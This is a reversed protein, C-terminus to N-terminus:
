SRELRSWIWSKIFSFFMVIALVIFIQRLLVASYFLDNRHLYFAIIVSGLAIPPVYSQPAITLLRDMALLAATFTLVFLGVGAYGFRCLMEAWINGATGYTVGPFLVPKYEDEFLTVPWGFFRSMGPPVLLLLPQLAHRPECTLNSRVVENLIAQTLFPESRAFIAPTAAIWHLVKKFVPDNASYEPVVDNRRAMRKEDVSSNKGTRSSMEEVSTNQGARTGPNNFETSSDRLFSALPTITIFRDLWNHKSIAAVLPAATDLVQFRVSHTLLMTVVFLVAFAGYTPTKRILCISGDQRLLLLCSAIFTMTSFLRFGVFLDCILYTVGLAVRRWRRAAVADITGLSALIEFAVYWYGIQRLTESKNVDFISGGTTLCAIVFAIPALTLYLASYDPRWVSVDQGRKTYQYSTNFIGALVISLFFGCGILYVSPLITLDQDPNLLLVNGFALPSFYFTGGLFAISFLDFPRDAFIFYCGSGFVIILFILILM